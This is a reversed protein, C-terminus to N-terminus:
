GAHPILTAAIRSQLWDSFRQQGAPLLHTLDCYLEIPIPEPEWRQVRSALAQGQPGSAAAIRAPRSDEEYDPRRPITLLAVHAGSALLEEAFRRAAVPAPGGPRVTVWEARHERFSELNRVAKRRWCAHDFQVDAESEATTEVQRDIGLAHRTREVLLLFRRQRPRDTALFESEMVVVDPKLEQITSALPAFDDFSGWNSTIRLVEVPEGAASSIAAALESEDRTAYKLSSSGILVVRKAGTAAERQGYARIRAANFVTFSTPVSLEIETAAIWALVWIVAALALTAFWVQLPATTTSEPDPM